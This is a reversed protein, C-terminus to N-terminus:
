RSTIAVSGVSPVSCSAAIRASNSYRVVRVRQLCETLTGTSMMGSRWRRLAFVPLSRVDSRILVLLLSVVLFIVPVIVAIVDVFLTSQEQVGWLACRQLVEKHTNHNCAGVLSAVFAPCDM